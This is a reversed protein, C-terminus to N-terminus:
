LGIWASCLSLRNTVIICTNHAHLQLTRHMRDMAKCFRDAMYPCLRPCIDSYSNM